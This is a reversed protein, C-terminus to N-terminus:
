ANARTGITFAGTNHSCGTLVMIGVVLCGSLATIQVIGEITDCIKQNM